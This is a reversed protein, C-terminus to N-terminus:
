SYQMLGFPTQCASFVAHMLVYSIIDGFVWTGQPVYSINIAIYQTLPDFIEPIIGRNLM